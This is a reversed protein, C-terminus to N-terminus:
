ISARLSAFYNRGSGSIGSSYPRYRQDTINEIGATIQFQKLFQYSTRLNFTHWAPSYNKGNADKAYIETKLQEEPALDEFKREGQYNTNFELIFSKNQYRLRSIGFLPAAHRSPSTSGNDLEEEGKQYNIDSSFMLGKIIAVEASAQFGYVRATAANQIAQVRSKVNNYIITDNGNFQFNRRVLANDLSTVFGNVELKLKDGFAKVIGLDLNSANEAAIEPNPVTVVGAIVDFFKGIDDVNPSRFGTGANLRIILDRIPKYVIGGSGTTAWDNIQATSYPFPFFAKNNVFDADLTFRSYRAGSQITIKDGLPFVFNTYLAMSGWDSNPYRAASQKVVNSVIDITNGTSIVDNTVFELGCYARGKKSFSSEFDLNASLADVNEFNSIRENRNLTREIRSEEFQQRALRLTVKDYFTNRSSNQVTLNNMMWLQPGYDWEAYRITGNRFRTHRDYRGYQSTNSYHFGYQIDWDASPSYRLKQMLNIQSYASPIQLLSDAQTLVVDRSFSRSPYLKKIYDRPGNSGQRLHDFDWGSISTLSSFKKGGINFDIHGTKEKNASSFRTVVSGKVLLNDDLSFQPTLTQFSMVGGIADSGYIVSGPGFLVETQEVAFPDLNIVNQINGARFIATNMRIGDVTYILRNTAFGRIMPSGGAQQSKQIFVKGSMGLLDAATQPNQFIVEKPSITIVKSAIEDTNQRWKNGTIVIESININSKTMIVKYDNSALKAVDSIYTKYGILSFNLSVNNNIKSIDAKGQTNTVTSLKTSDSYIVVGILPEQSESDLITVVQSAMPFAYSLIFFVLSTKIILNM